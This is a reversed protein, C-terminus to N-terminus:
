FSWGFVIELSGAHYYFPELPYHSRWVLPHYSADFDLEVGLVLRSRVKGAVGGGYQFAGGYFYSPREDSRWDIFTGTGGVGLLGYVWVRRWAAGLRVEALANLGHVLEPELFMMRHEFALGLTARFRGSPAFM